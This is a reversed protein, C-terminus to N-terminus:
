WEKKSDWGLNRIWGMSGNAPVSGDADGSYVLM